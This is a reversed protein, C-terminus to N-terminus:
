AEHRRLDAALEDYTAKDVRPPVPRGEAVRGVKTALLRAAATRNRTGTSGRVSRGPVFYQMWWVAQQRITGDSAQYTPRYLTGTGRNLRSM